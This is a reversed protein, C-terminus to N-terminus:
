GTRSRLVNGGMGVAIGAAIGLLAGRLGQGLALGMGFGMALGGVIWAVVNARPLRWREFPDAQLQSEGGRAAKRSAALFTILLAPRFLNGVNQVTNGPALNGTELIDMVHVITAGVSFITAAIVAAERLGDRRHIAMVGLVGIALNAFGVELQFPNGAPWGIAEAVQDSAFFHGSFGGIGNAGVSIGLLYLTFLELRREQTRAGRDLWIHGAGLLLPLLVYIFIRLLYTSM